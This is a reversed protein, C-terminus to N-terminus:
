SSRIRERDSESEVSTVALLAESFEDIRRKLLKIAGAYRPSNFGLKWLLRDCLEPDETDGMSRLDVSQAIARFVSREPVILDSVAARLGKTALYDALADEISADDRKRIRWELDDLIQNAEYAKQISFRLRVLPRPRASRIGLISLETRFDRRSIRRPSIPARRIEEPQIIIRQEFVARDILDVLESNRLVALLQLPRM